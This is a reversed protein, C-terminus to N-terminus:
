PSIGLFSVNMDGLLSRAIEVQDKRVLLIAPQILPDIQNFIEGRFFYEIGADDLLSKIVAIDGLNFTSLLREYGVTNHTQEPPLEAVLAVRCDTCETFGDRYEAGCEPCFM